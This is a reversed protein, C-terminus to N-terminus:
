AASLTERCQQLIVAAAQIRIGPDASENTVFGELMALAARQRIREVTRTNLSGKPKGSRNGTEGPQYPM